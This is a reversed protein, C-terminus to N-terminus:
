PVIDLRKEVVNWVYCLFLGIVIWTQYDKMGTRPDHFFVFPWPCREQGKQGQKTLNKSPGMVSNIEQEKATKDLTGDDKEQKVLEKHPNSGGLMAFPCKAQGEKLSGSEMVTGNQQHQQGLFATGDVIGVGNEDVVGDKRRQQKKVCEDYYVTACEYDRVVAGEIENLMDLEEFIRMNLVFAVNAEAVLREIQEDTLVLEDLAKRYRDKFLKASPIEDFQYFRLGSDDKQLNLARKAVRALIKGGSLDGLYRTYAHSLLLLPEKQAIFELRQIYDSTAKSPMTRCDCGDVRRKKEGHFFDVDDKLAETRKLEKPFHLTEFYTPAYQDLLEELERYLHYLNCILISYLTRDINGKIFEKVFHVSEAASHSEKTGQKLAQSLLTTSGSRKLPHTTTTTSSTTTTESAAITNQEVPLLSSGTDDIDINKSSPPPTSAVVNDRIFDLNERPHQEPQPQIGLEEQILKGMLGFLSFREMEDSFSASKGYIKQFPPPPTMGPAPNQNKVADDNASKKMTDLTVTATATATASSGVVVKSDLHRSVNHVHALAVKVLEGIDNNERGVNLCNNGIEEQNKDKNFIKEDDDDKDDGVTANPSRFCLHSPPLSQLAARM